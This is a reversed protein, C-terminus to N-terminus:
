VMNKSNSNLLQDSTHYSKVVVHSFIILTQSTPPTYCGFWGRILFTFIYVNQFLILTVHSFQSNETLYQKWPHIILSQLKAAIQRKELM